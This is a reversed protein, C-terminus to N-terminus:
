RYQCKTVIGSYQWNYFEIEFSSPTYREHRKMVLWIGDRWPCSVRCGGISEWIKMTHSIMKIGRYNGCEQIDGKLMVTKLKIAHFKAFSPGEFKSNLLFLAFRHLESLKSDKCSLSVILNAHFVIKM